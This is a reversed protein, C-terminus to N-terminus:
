KVKAAVVCTKKYKKVVGELNFVEIYILYIGISVKRNEDDLGNWTIVGETGLLENNCLYRVRRGKGDFIMIGAIYGPQDFNYCISLIDEFGDNDPSFVEPEISIEDDTREPDSYQSNKYAPTAFGVSEAASHWNGPDNTGGEFSIRELSVGEFDNLLAFHMDENYAFDDIVNEWTDTIVVRGEKDNYSPMGSMDIFGDPNSSYYIDLIKEGDTSLVIYEGPFFLYGDNTIDKVSSLAWNEDDRTALNLDKLDITKSSRNYIEVFDTGHSFPNFLVENIIIDMNGAPEPIAFVCTNSNGTANGACDSIEGPVTVTYIIHEQFSQPFVLIVSKYEPEVPDASVPCGMDHNVSFLSADCVSTSDLPENFYIQVTSDSLVSARVSEPCEHDPNESYVSNQQGPTGGAHDESATWNDQGGCPNDPDMQELSWGGEAKYEDGYWSDSYTVSFIIMGERDKITINMDENYLSPFSYLGLVTGYEAYLDEIDQSCVILYSFAALEFAPFTKVTNGVILTWNDLNISYQTNNYLEIYEYEPLEVSPVPDAMIENIVIDYPHANYIVFEESVPDIINDCLDSINEITLTHDTQEQFGTFFWLQVEDMTNTDFVISDPNGAGNNVSYNIKDIASVETVPESFRIFIKNQSVIDINTIYPHITDINQAFVSNQQGPTGGSQDNSAIWNTLTGCHNDPDIRELSWGGEEKEEDQYWTDTYSVSSIETGSSDKVTITNGSNTVAPFSYIGATNGFIELEAAADYPCLILYSDAMLETCPILKTYSGITLTWNDLIIDFDSNNFLEIYEHEPLGAPPYPDAMIENIVIDEPQPVFYIFEIDAQSMINGYMDQVNEVSLICEQGNPFQEQFFLQVFSPDVTDQSVYLPNGVNNNVSYNTVMCASNHDVPESFKLNIQTGSVLIFQEIVPPITDCFPSGTVIIDDYFFRDHRTSSYKCSVGFYGTQIYTNDFVGGEYYYDTGGLTDSYLEWNGQDDRLVKVRVRVTDMDIRDNTGDIIETEETGDQRYLSIEDDTNGTKVFYGNLSTELDSTDSVLYVKSYNASSPNFDMKIFFEWVANNIAQSQTALYSTDAVEPANLHLQLLTDIEFNASDGTWSPDDTFNGDSFNDNVQAFVCSPFIIFFFILIRM